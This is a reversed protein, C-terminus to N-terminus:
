MSQNNKKDMIRKIFRRYIWLAFIAVIGLMIIVPIAQAVFILITGLFSLVGKFSNSFGNILKTFYGPEKAPDVGPIKESINITITSLEVLDSWKKLNGTLKEIQQRIETLRSQTKFITDPDNLKFLYEELRSEEYKLLKLMSETDIFQDTVDDSKISEDMLLGVGKIDSLVSDFRDKDVRIIIVGKSILKQQSNVYVKDKKINSEQIYGFAGIISKIQAYAENFDEVEVSINANRIVKRQALIANSATVNPIGNSGSTSTTTLANVTTSNTSGFQDKASPQQTSNKEQSNSGRVKVSDAAAGNAASQATNSSTSGTDKKSSGCGSFLLVTILFLSFLCTFKKM